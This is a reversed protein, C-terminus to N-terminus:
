MIKDASGTLCSGHHKARLPWPIFCHVVIQIWVIITQVLRCQIPAITTTNFLMISSLYKNENVLCTVTAKNLNQEGAEVNQNTVRRDITGYYDLSQLKCTGTLSLPGLVRHVGTESETDPHHRDHEDHCRLMLCFCCIAINITYYM